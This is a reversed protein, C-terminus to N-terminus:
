LDYCQTTVGLTPLVHFSMFFDTPFGTRNTSTLLSIFIIKQQQNKLLEDFRQKM